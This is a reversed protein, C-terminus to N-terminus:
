NLCWYRAFTRAGSEDLERSRVRKSFVFLILLRPSLIVTVVILLISFLHHYVTLAYTSCVLYM